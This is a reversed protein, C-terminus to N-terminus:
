VTSSAREKRSASPRSGAATASATSPRNMLAKTRALFGRDYLEAVIAGVAARVGAGDDGAVSRLEAALEAPTTRGDLRGLIWLALRSLEVTRDLDHDYLLAAAGDDERGEPEGTLAGPHALRAVRQHPGAVLPRDMLRDPASRPRARRPPGYLAAALAGVGAEHLFLLTHANISLGAHRHRSRAAVERSLAARTAEAHAPTPRYDFRVGLPGDPIVRGIGFAEPRREMPAGKQLEFTGFSFTAAGGTQRRVFAATAEAEAPTEGPFGFFFQLNFAIGARRCDALIREIEAHRVGKGMAELVRPSYSELGFILNRCGAERLAALLEHTLAKEFRVECQWSVEPGHRGLLDALARLTRPSVCDDAFSVCRAGHREALTALDRHVLEPARARYRLGTAPSVSCFACRRWYCGRSAALLFVPEPALYRDLPLGDHDPTPLADVDEWGLPNARLEGGRRWVLNPVAELGAGRELAALLAVLPTEGEFPILYDCWDFVEPADPLADVWRSAMSGGFVVPVGPLRERVLLALTVAPVVQSRYTVSVGVAGPAARELRPLVSTEFFARFPNRRRDAAWASVKAPWAVERADAALPPGAPHCAAALVEMAEDVRRKTAALRGLDRFTERRGLAAVAADIEAAVQPARLWADLLRAYEARRRGRPPPGASIRALRRGVRDGADRLGDATLVSRAYEVNADVPVVECWGTRRVFAALAPLSSYPQTPDAVPPFVLALRM